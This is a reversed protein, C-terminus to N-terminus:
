SGAVFREVTNIVYDGGNKGVLLCFFGMLGRMFKATKSKTLRMFCATWISSIYQNLGEVPLIEVVSELLNFGELDTARSSILKLFIGLLGELIAPNTVMAIGGKVLYAQLLRVLPPANATSEWLMPALLLQYLQMYQEPVGNDRSELLQALIQFIYPQLEVVEAQLLMEFPPFLQREFMEIAQLNGPCTFRVASGIAEFLFHNFRPKGPNKAVEMLIGNLASTLTEALPLIEAKAAAITRMIAKMIHENEPQGPLAGFLSTLLDGAWAGVETATFMPMREVHLCLVRELVGTLFGM